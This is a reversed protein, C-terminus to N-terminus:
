NVGPATRLIEPRPKLFTRDIAQRWAPVNYCGLQQQSLNSGRLYVPQFECFRGGTLSQKRMQDIKICFFDFSFSENWQSTSDAVSCFKLRTKWWPFSIIQVASSFVCQKEQHPLFGFVEYPASTSLSVNWLSLAVSESHENFQWAIHENGWGYWVSCVRFQDSYSKKVAGKSEQGECVNGEPIKHATYTRLGSISLM